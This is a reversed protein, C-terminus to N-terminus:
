NGRKEREIVKDLEKNLNNAMMLFGIDNPHITDVTLDHYNKGLLKRGDVYYIHQDGNKKFKKVMNMEFLRIRERNKGLSENLDDFIYKIRSVVVIPTIPHKSRITNIFNELTLELKGNTGGNAEYDIVFMTADEIESMIKAFLNEGFANGSFGFNIIECKRMRTLMNTYCLGPRSACGGQTISTGYYVIKQNKSLNEKPKKIYAGEDIALELQFVNAYLPLNIVVLKEENSKNQFLTYEYEDKNVDFRTSDHFILHDYDCGVYCDFGAQALFTMGSIKSGNLIKAHIVLKKSDTLFHLQGGATNDKLFYVSSSVKKVDERYKIPLRSYIKDENIYNFGYFKVEENLPNVWRLGDTQSKQLSMNSDVNM